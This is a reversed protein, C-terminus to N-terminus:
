IRYSLAPVRPAAAAAATTTLGPILLVRHVHLQNHLLKLGLLLRSAVSDAPSGPSGAGIQLRICISRILAECGGPIIVEAHSIHSRTGIWPSIQLPHREGRRLGSANLTWLQRNEFTGRVVLV